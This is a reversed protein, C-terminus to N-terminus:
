LYAQKVCGKPVVRLIIENLEEPSIKKSGSSGPLLPLFNNLETLRAEFRKFPLDQPKRMERRMARKQKSLANILSFLWTFGGLYVEFTCKSNWQESNSTWWIRKSSVWTVDYTSLEKTRGSVYNKYRWYCGQFNEHYLTIIITPWEWIYWDQDWIDRLRSSSSELVAQDQHHWVRECIRDSGQSTTNIAEQYMILGRCQSLSSQHTDEHDYINLTKPLHLKHWLYHIKLTMWANDIAIRYLM